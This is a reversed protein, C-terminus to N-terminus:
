GLLERRVLRGTTLAAETDWHGPEFTTSRGIRAYLGSLTAASTVEPHDVIEVVHQLEHALIAVAERGSLGPRLSARVMRGADTTAMWTLRGSLGPRLALPTDLYVLVDGAEIREVLARFTPSKEVGRAILARMQRSQPRLNSPTEAALPVVVLSTLVALTFALVYRRLM